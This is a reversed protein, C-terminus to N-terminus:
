GVGNKNEKKEVIIKQTEYNYKGTVPWGGFSCKQEVDVHHIKYKELAEQKSRAQVEFVWTEKVPVFIEYTYLKKM